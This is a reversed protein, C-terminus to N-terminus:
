GQHSCDLCLRISFRATDRKEPPEQLSGPLPVRKSQGGAQVKLLVGEGVWTKGVGYQRKLLCLGQVQPNCPSEPVEPSLPTQSPPM